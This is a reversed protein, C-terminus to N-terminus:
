RQVKQTWKKGNMEFEVSDKNIKTVKAGFIEEGERVVQNSIVASPEDESYVIGKVTLGGLEMQAAATGYKMPDRLTAPYLPPIEWNIKESSNSQVKQQGLSEAMPKKVKFGGLARIFLLIMVVALVPILFFMVKQRTTSLVATKAAIKSTIKQWFQQLQIPRGPKRSVKVKPKRTAAKPATKPVAPRPQKVQKQEPAMQLGPAPVRPAALGSRALTDQQTSRQTGRKKEVPVGDFISAIEKHLGARRKAM